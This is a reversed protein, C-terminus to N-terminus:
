GLGTPWTDGVRYGDPWPDAPDLTLQHTGTIWARGTISPLIAPTEGVTIEGEIRGDFRSDIISRAILRDGREMRGQAHLVAMRASLGTGTPSRDIKGPRIAVANRYALMGEAPDPAVPGAIQCFSIHQWDPNEPHHFGRQDNAAATSRMGTAALDRAEAAPM